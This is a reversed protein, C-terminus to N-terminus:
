KYLIQSPKKDRDGKYLNTNFVGTTTSSIRNTQTSDKENRNYINGTVVNKPTMKCDNDFLKGLTYYLNVKFLSRVNGVLNCM